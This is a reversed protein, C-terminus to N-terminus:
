KRHKKYSIYNVPILKKINLKNINLLVEAIQTQTAWISNNLKLDKRIILAKNLFYLSQTYSKLGCFNAGLIHYLWHLLEKNGSKELIPKATFYNKNAELYNKNFYHVLGIGAYARAVNVTDNFRKCVEINKLYFKIALQFNGERINHAALNKLSFLQGFYFNNKLSINYSLNLLSDTKIYNNAWLYSDYFQLTKKVKNTDNCDQKLEKLISEVILNDNQIKSHMCNTCITILILIFYRM